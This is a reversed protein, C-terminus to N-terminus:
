LKPLTAGMRLLACSIGGFKTGSNGTRKWALVCFSDGTFLTIMPKHQTRTIWDVNSHRWDLINSDEVRRKLFVKGDNCVTVCSILWFTWFAQYDAQGVKLAWTRLGPAGLSVVVTSAELLYTLTLVVTCTDTLM